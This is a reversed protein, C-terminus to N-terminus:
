KHNVGKFSTYVNYCSLFFVNCDNKIILSTKLGIHEEVKYKYQRKLKYQNSRWLHTKLYVFRADPMCVTLRTDVNCSPDIVYVVQKIVNIQNCFWFVDNSSPNITTKNAIMDRWMITMSNRTGSKQSSDSCINHM